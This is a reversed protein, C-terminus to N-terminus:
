TMDKPRLFQVLRGPCDGVASWTATEFKIVALAGTPYKHWLKSLAKPKSAPGSLRVALHHFGPNHGILMVRQAPERVRRVTSLLRSPTALYLSRMVKVHADQKLESQFQEWTEQARRAASCLVLDLKLGQKRFARGMRPAAKLGRPALPRDFDELSPDSWDSKAHRLLYLTKM